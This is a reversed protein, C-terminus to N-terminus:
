LAFHINLIKGIYQKIENRLTLLFDSVIERIYNVALNPLQIHRVILSIKRVLFFYAYLLMTVLQLISFFYLFIM